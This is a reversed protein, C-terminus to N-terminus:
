NATDSLRWKALRSFLPMEQTFVGLSAKMPFATESLSLTDAEVKSGIVFGRDM